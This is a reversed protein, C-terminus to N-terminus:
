LMEGRVQDTYDSLLQNFKPSNSKLEELTGNAILKGNEFMVIRDFLPLLHLRHISSIITKGRMSRFVNEHIRKETTADQSSTPEDLLLIESDRCLMLGRALALRQQQGVSIDVGKENISSDFGKPLRNAVETFCAMDTYKLVLSMEVKEGFTINELITTAFIEPAQPILAISQSFDKVSMIEGDVSYTGSKPIYLGCMLKLLTTKGSGSLGVFAIREGRIIDLTIKDLHLDGEEHSHYTFDIDRLSLTKWNNPLRGEVVETKIFDNAITESNRVRAREQQIEGYIGTFHFFLEGVKSLYSVVLFFSGILIVEKDKIQFLYISVVIVFMLNCCASTLFWKIESLKKNKRSLDIPENLKLVINDIIRGQLRLMIITTINSIGDQISQAISNEIKNLKNYQEVLVRDFRITILVTISMMVLVVLASPMSIYALMCYSAILRVSLYIVNFSNSSFHHLADSGKGVKDITNGSHHDIHWSMPLKLVGGFLYKRYNIKAATFANNMEMVRAPGHLSWFVLDIIMILFTLKLLYFINSSNVGYRQVTNIIQSLVLPSLIVDLSQAIVFMVYIFSLKVRNGLSFEWTKGFLYIVPNGKTPVEENELMSDGKKQKLVNLRM